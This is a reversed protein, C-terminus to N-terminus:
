GRGASTQDVPLPAAGMMLEFRGDYFEATPLRWFTGDAHAVYLAVGGFEGFMTYLGGTQIHRYVFM